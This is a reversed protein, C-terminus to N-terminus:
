SDAPLVVYRGSAELCRTEGCHLTQNLTIQGKGRTDLSTALQRTADDDAPTCTLRYDGTVPATFRQSSEAVVVSRVLGRRRLWLTLWCWGALTTQAALAGGFGTGKDNLSPALALAWELQEDQHHMAKIGLEGAMPIAEELWTQFATLDDDGGPEPLPPPPYAIGPMREAM